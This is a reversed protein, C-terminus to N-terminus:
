KTLQFSDLFRKGDASIPKSKDYQTYLLMYMRPRVLYVRAAFGINKSPSIGIIERGTHGNITIQRQSTVEGQVNSIAGQQAGNLLDEPPTATFIYDPYETYGTIFGEYGETFTYMRLPLPGAASPITSEDKEAKGPMSVSFGDGSVTEWSSSPPPTFSPSPSLSPSPSFSPSAGPPPSGGAIPPHGPNRNALIVALVVGVIVVLLGGVIWPMPSRRQPYPTIYPPPSTLAPRISATPNGQMMETPSAGSRYPYNATPAESVDFSNVPANVLTTGDDFCYNQDDPYTRSCAPCRKM